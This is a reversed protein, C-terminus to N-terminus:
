PIPYAPVQVVESAKFAIWSKLGNVTGQFDQNTPILFFSDQRFKQTISWFVYIQGSTLFEPVIIDYQKRMLCREFWDLLFVMMIDEFTLALTQSSIHFTLVFLPMQCDLDEGRLTVSTSSLYPSRQRVVTRQRSWRWKRHSEALSIQSRKIKKETHVM